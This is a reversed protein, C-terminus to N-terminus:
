PNCDFVVTKTGDSNTTITGISARGNYNRCYADAAGTEQVLQSDSTYTYSVSPRRPVLAPAPTVAAAAITRDCDFVATSSGDPDDTVNVLRPATGYRSCYDDARRTANVLERDGRYKYTVSPHSAEVQRPPSTPAACSALACSAALMLAPAILRGHPKRDSRIMM